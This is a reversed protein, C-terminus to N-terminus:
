VESYLLLSYLLVLQNVRRKAEQQEQLQSMVTMMEDETLGQLKSKEKENEMERDLAALEEAEQQELIEEMEESDESIELM